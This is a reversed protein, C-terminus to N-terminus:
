CKVMQCMFGFNACNDVESDIVYHLHFMGGFKWANKFNKLKLIYFRCCFFIFSYISSSIFLQPPLPNVIGGSHKKPKVNM